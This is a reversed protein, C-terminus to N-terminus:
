RGAGSRKLYRLRGLLAAGVFGPFLAVGSLDRIDDANAQILGLCFIAAALAVLVIGIRGDNAGTATPRENMREILAEAASSNSRIAERLTRQLIFIRAIRALQISVLVAAAALVITIIIDAEM